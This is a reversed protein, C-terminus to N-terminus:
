TGRSRGNTSLLKFRPRMRPCALLFGGAIGPTERLLRGSLERVHKLMLLRLARVNEEQFRGPGVWVTKIIGQVWNHDTDFVYDIHLRIGYRGLTFGMNEFSDTHSELHTHEHWVLRVESEAQWERTKVPAILGVLGADEPGRRASRQWDRALTEIEGFAADDLPEDAYVMRAVFPPLTTQRLLEVDFEISIGQDGYGRWM